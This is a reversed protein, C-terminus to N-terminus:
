FYVIKRKRFRYLRAPRFPGFTKQKCVSLIPLALIKKRFNRKDMKKGLIIEYVHQLDTLTFQKPLFSYAINSYLLKSRLRNHAVKIMKEHDFAMAPLNKVPVWDIDTYFDSTKLTYQKTNGVLLLYAISVIQGRIDRGLDGFTYLQELHGRTINTKNKLVRIAATEPNENLQILGGSLAWKDKYPGNGIKILLSVLQDKKISFVITDVALAPGRIKEHLNKQM